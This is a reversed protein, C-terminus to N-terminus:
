EANLSKKLYTLSVDRERALYTKADESLSTSLGDGEGYVLGRLGLPELLDHLRGFMDECGKQRRRFVRLNRTFSISFVSAHFSDTCVTDAHHVLWVFEDPGIAYHKPDTKDNINLIQLGRVAAIRNIEARYEATVDGLFFQLLYRDPLKFSPKKEIESWEDATLLLTPDLVKQADRGTLERILECGERERCSLARMGMLGRRHQEIDEPSFATFGFSPAYSVRKSEDVFELYYFSLEDPIEKTHWNHWVQDSGTVAFDFGSWDTQRVEAVPIRIMHSLYQENFRLIKRARNSVSVAPKFKEAGGYALLEKMKHKVRRTLPWPKQPRVMLSDVICGVNSITRQLAYHQLRNGYNITGELTVLIIKKKGTPNM